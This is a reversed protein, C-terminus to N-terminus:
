CLEIDFHMSSKRERINKLTSLLIFDDHFDILSLGNIPLFWARFYTKLPAHL